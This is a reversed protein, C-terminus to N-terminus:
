KVRDLYSLCFHFAQARRCSDAIDPTLRKESILFDVKKLSKPWHNEEEVVLFSLTEATMSTVAFRIASLLLTSPFNGCNGRANGRNCYKFRHEPEIVSEGGHCVGEFEYILPLRPDSASAPRVRSRPEFLPCPMARNLISKGISETQAAEVVVVM